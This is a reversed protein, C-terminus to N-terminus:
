SFCKRRTAWGALVLLFLTPLSYSPEPVATSGVSNFQGKLSRFVDFQPNSVLGVLTDPFGNWTGLNPIVEPLQVSSLATPPGIFSLFLNRNTQADAALPGSITFGALQFTISDTAGPPWPQSADRDIVTVGSELSSSSDPTLTSGGINLLFAQPVLYSARSIGPGTFLLSPAASTDYYLYGSFSTGSGISGFDSTQVTGAFDLRIISAFSPLTGFIVVIALLRLKPM